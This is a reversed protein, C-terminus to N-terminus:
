REPQRASAFARDQFLWPEYDAPGKALGKKVTYEQTVQDEKGLAAVKVAMRYRGEAQQKDIDINGSLSRTGLDVTEEEPVSGLEVWENKSSDFYSFTRTITVKVDKTGEPAMVYYTGSPKLQGGPAVGSPNIAFDEIRVIEGQSPAYGIREATERGGAVPFSRLDSYVSLCHGWAIAFALAGGAAAGILATETKAKRHGILGGLVAGGVAGAATYQTICTRKASEREEDTLATGRKPLPACSGSLFACLVLLGILRTM